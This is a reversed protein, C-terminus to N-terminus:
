VSGLDRRYPQLLKRAAAPLAYTSPLEAPLESGSYYSGGISGAMGKADKRLWTRVTIVAARKVEEPISPFGWAGTIDVLANGFKLSHTSVLPIWPSIRLATYVGESNVFPELQYDSTSVVLPSSTEPNLSVTTASQLDYPTFVVRGKRSVVFRRTTATSVPAFERRTAKIIASSAEDIYEAIAGDLSTDTAPIEMALHVDSVTCLANAAVTHSTIELDTEPSDQTKGSALTVEWWFVYMGATDTDGTQWDYRVTGATANVVTAAASVKITASDALRMKFTVTSGTLDFAVGNVSITDSISPSLTNQFISLM